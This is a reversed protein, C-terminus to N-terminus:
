RKKAVDDALQQEKTLGNKTWAHGVKHLNTFVEPTLPKGNYQIVGCVQKSEDADTHAAICGDYDQLLPILEDLLINFKVGLGDLADIYVAWRANFEEREKANNAVRLNLADIAANYNPRENDISAKEANFADRRADLRAKWANCTDFLARDSTTGACKPTYTDRVEANYAAIDADVAATRANKSLTIADSKKTEEILANNQADLKPARATLEVVEPSSRLATIDNLMKSGAAYLVTLKDGLTTPTEAVPAVTPTQAVVPNSFLVLAFMSFIVNKM